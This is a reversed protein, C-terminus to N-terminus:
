KKVVIYLLKSSNITYKIGDITMTNDNTTQFRGTQLFGDYLSINGKVIANSLLYSTDNTFYGSLSTKKTAKINNYIEYQEPVYISLRYGNTSSSITVEFEVGNIIARQGNDDIAYFINNSSPTQRRLKYTTNDLFALENDIITLEVNDNDYWKLTGKFRVGKNSLDFDAYKPKGNIMDSYEADFLVGIAKVAYNNSGYNINFTSYPSKLEKLENLAIPDEGAIVDEKSLSNANAKNIIHYTDDAQNVFYSYNGGSNVISVYSYTPLITGYGTKDNNEMDDSDIESYPILLAEGTKPEYLLKDKARMTRAAEAYNKALNVVTEDRSRNINGTVSIVVITMIAALIVIVALLEILTFGKKNM